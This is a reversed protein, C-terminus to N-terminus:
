YTYTDRTSHAIVRYFDNNDSTTNAGHTFTLYGFSSVGGGMKLGFDVNFTLVGMLYDHNSSINFYKKLVQTAMLVYASGNYAYANVTVSGMTVANTYCTVLVDLIVKCKYGYAVSPNVTQLNGSSCQGWAYDIYYNQFYAPGYGSIASSGYLATFAGDGRVSFLRQESNNEFIIGQNNSNNVRTRIAHANFGYGAVATTNALSRGSGSQAMYIGWNTDGENWLYIGRSSGGDQSNQIIIKSGGTIRGSGFVDLNYTAASYGLAISNSVVMKNMCSLTDGLYMNNQFAANGNCTMVYGAIPSAINVGLTTFTGTSATTILSSIKGTPVNLNKDIQVSITPTISSLPRIITETPTTANNEWWSFGAPGTPGTAGSDGKPGTAGTAGTRGTSGTWGTSGTFGTSGTYGTYGTFGSPGTAGSPGLQTNMVQQVTLIASPSNPGTGPILSPITVNTNDVAYYLQVYENPVLSQYYFNWSPIANGKNISYVSNSYTVSSGNASLWIYLTQHTNNSTSVAQLSFQINYVAPNALVIQTPKGNGDNTINIGISSVVTNYQIPYGTNILLPIQNTTDYASIYYGRSGGPGTPGLAGTAGTAGTSTVGVPGAPGTDGKPGTAGTAGTRGTSGTYGTFGTSGTAGTNGTFGTYGTSGTSGTYGTLGTAGTYGTFGTPGTNGTPGMPGTQGQPGTPGTQSIPNNDITLQDVDLWSLGDLTKITLTNNGTLTSTM